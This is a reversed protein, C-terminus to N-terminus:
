CFRNQEEGTADNCYKILKNKIISVYIKYGTNILSISRYNEPKKIDEKRHILIGTAKQWSTTTSEYWVTKFFTLLGTSYIGLM